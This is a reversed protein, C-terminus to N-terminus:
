CSYFQSSHPPELGAEPRPCTVKRGKVENNQTKLFILFTCPLIQFKVKQVTSIPLSTDMALDVAERGEAGGDSREEREREGEGNSRSKRVRSDM